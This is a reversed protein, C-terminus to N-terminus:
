VLCLKFVNWASSDWALGSGQRIPHRRKFSDMLSECASAHFDQRPLNSLQEARDNGGRTKWLSDSHLSEVADNGKDGNLTGEQTKQPTSHRPQEGRKTGRWLHLHLRIKPANMVGEEALGGEGDWVRGGPRARAGMGDKSNYDTPIKAEMLRIVAM